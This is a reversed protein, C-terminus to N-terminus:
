VLVLGGSVLMSQKKKKELLATLGTKFTSLHEFPGGALHNFISGTSCTWLHGFPTQVLPLFINFRKETDMLHVFIHRSQHM